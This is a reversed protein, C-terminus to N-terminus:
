RHVAPLAPLKGALCSIMDFAFYVILILVFAWLVIGIIRAVMSGALGLNALVVPLLLRIIAVIAGIVIAWIFLQALWVLTFCM